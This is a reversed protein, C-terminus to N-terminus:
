RGGSLERARGILEVLERRYGGPDKGVAGRALEDVLAWSAQGAHRSGRLLMGFAAVSAAFRTDESAADFSGGPDSAAFELEKAVDGEPQKYRLRVTVLSPTGAVQAGDVPVVEYLATVTHGAGIEGADKRDDRFDANAMVRNEYGLLRYAAVVQPNWEVQVKVDKAITVLTGASQEVLVKKAERATDILAYNGNGKDALTESLADNYNSGGFGLVTLFVNSRAKQTILAELQGLDSLGVNFDGDSCLIVRNAGGDQFGEIAVRYALEIGAGGNTSGGASLRELAGVIEQKRDGPTSPLVLGAAGAYAVIAVRDREGRQAALAKLGEKVLPLKNPSSMSGSTDVLFVLNCPPRQALDLERGKLGVRVLRHKPAWPCGTVEVHAAFPDTGTPPAYDYTFYNIMEELRVADPPPLQHHNLFRRANAYAATDVDIAFTSRVHEGSVAQFENEPLGVVGGPRHGPRPDTEDGGVMRRAWPPAATTPGAAEAPMRLALDVDPMPAGRPTETSPADDKGVPLVTPPLETTTPTTGGDLGEYYIAGSHNTAFYRDGTSPAPDTPADELYAADLRGRPAAAGELTVQLSARRETVVSWTLGAVGVVSAAMLWPRLRVVLGRPQAGPAAAQAEVRRRQSPRLAKVPAEAAEAKLDSALMSGLTRITEVQARAAEDQALLAEFGAREAEPLEGLAYATLRPDDADITHKTTM